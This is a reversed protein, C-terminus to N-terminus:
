KLTKILREVMPAIRRQGMEWRNVTNRAVGLQKALEMQTLGLKARVQKLAEPTM